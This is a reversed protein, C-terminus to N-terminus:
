KRGEEVHVSHLPSNSVCFPSTWLNLYSCNVLFLLLILLACVACVLLVSLVHGVRNMTHPGISYDLSGPQGGGPASFTLGTRGPIMANTCQPKSHMLM